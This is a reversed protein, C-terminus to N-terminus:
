RCTPRRSTWCRPRSLQQAVLACCNQQGMSAAMVSAGHEALIKKVAANRTRLLPIEQSQERATTWAFRTLCSRTCAISPPSSKRSVTGRLRSRRVGSSEASSRARSPFRSSRARRTAESGAADASGYWNVRMGDYLTRNALIGPTWEVTHIKAMLAANVLRATQFLREDDWDAHAEHLHDCIANHERAFLTHMMALGIWWNRVFGTREMGTAPDIPLLGDGTLSLKGMVGSRLSRQTAEDSGYIQSGDWWHTVENM